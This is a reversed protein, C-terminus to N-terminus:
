VPTLTRKSARLTHACVAAIWVLLGALAVRQFGPLAAYVTPMRRAIGLYYVAYVYAYALGDVAGAAVTVVAALRLWPALGAARLSVRLAALGAVLAPAFALVVALTHAEHFRDSDIAPVVCAFACAVFGAARAVRSARSPRAELSPVLAFFGALALVLSLVGARAAWAGLGAPRGNLARAQMLDCLFNLAISHGKARPDFWTGGPYRHAAYGVGLFFGGTGVACLAVWRATKTASETEEAARGSLLM